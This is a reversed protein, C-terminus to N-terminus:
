VHQCSPCGWMNWKSPGRLSRGGEEKSPSLVSWALKRQQQGNNTMAREFIYPAKLKM